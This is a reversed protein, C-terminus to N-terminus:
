RYTDLLKKQVGTYTRIQKDTLRQGGANMFVAHTLARQERFMVEDSDQMLPKPGRDGGLDTPVSAWEAPLFLPCGEGAGVMAAGAWRAVFPAM